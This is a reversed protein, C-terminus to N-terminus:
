DDVKKVKLVPEVMLTKFASLRVLGPKAKPPKSVFKKQTYHVAAKKEKKAQSYFAAVSAAEVITNHPIPQRTPNRVIVHSGPYDAAHLWIDLSGAVRFTLADNERDNRGVVIELGDSSIFRRGAVMRAREKKSKQNSARENPNQAVLGLETEVRSLTPLDPTANLADSLTRLSAVQNAAAAERPELSQLARRAKQYFAYYRAAAANLSEGEEVKIEISPQAEDYLDTVMAGNSTRTATALNALLLDGYRKFKDPDDFRSLDDRLSHLLGKEKKIRSALVKKAAGFRRNFADIRDIAQYYADAADSFSKFENEVWGAAWSLPLVSLFLGHAANAFAKGYQDLPLTSYLLPLHRTAALDRVLSDLAELKSQRTSRFELEKRLSTGLPSSKSFYRDIADQDSGTGASQEDPSPESSLKKPSGARVNEDSESKKAPPIIDTDRFVGELGSGELSSGELGSGELGSGNSTLFANTSRGTFAVTLVYRIKDDLDPAEFVLRVVRDDPDKVIETLTAGTLRSKLLLAFQTEPRKAMRGSEGAHRQPALYLGSNSQDLRIVLCQGGRLGLDVRITRGTGDIRSVSRSCIVPTLEAIIDNLFLNDM